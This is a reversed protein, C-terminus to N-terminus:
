FVLLGGLVYENKLVYTSTGDSVEISELYIGFQVTDDEEDSIGSLNAWFRFQSGYYNTDITESLNTFGAYVTRGPIALDADGFSIGTGSNEGWVATPVWGSEAFDTFMGIVTFGTVTLRPCASDGLSFALDLVHIESADGDGVRGGPSQQGTTIVLTNSMVVTDTTAEEGVEGDDPDLDWVVVAFACANTTGTEGTEDATESDGTNTDTVDGSGTDASDSDSSEEDCGVKANANTDYGDWGLLCGSLIIIFM